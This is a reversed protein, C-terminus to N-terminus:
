LWRERAWSWVVPLALALAIVAAETVDKQAYEPLWGEAVAYTVLPAVLHRILRNLERM